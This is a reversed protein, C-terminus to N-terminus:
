PQWIRRFGDRNPMKVASLTEKNFGDEAAALGNLHLMFGVLAYVEDDSLSFPATPPMARKTYDFLTAAHLWYSGVTKEPMPSALSGIGGALELATRGQGNAGHCAACREAYLLRGQAVTGFGPPLGGDPTAAIDYSDADAAAIGLRPPLPEGSDAFFRPAAVTLVVIAIISIRTSMGSAAM